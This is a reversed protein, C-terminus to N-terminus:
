TAPAYLARISPFLQDPTADAPSLRHIPNALITSWTTFAMGTAIDSREGVIDPSDLRWSNKRRQDGDWLYRKPSSLGSAGESGTRRAALHAAENGVRM